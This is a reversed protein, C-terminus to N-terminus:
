DAWYSGAIHLEGAASMNTYALRTTDSRSIGLYNDTALDVYPNDVGALNIGTSRRDNVVANFLANASADVPLRISVASTDAIDLGSWTHTLKFFVIKGVKIYRWTCTQSTVTVFAFGATTVTKEELRFFSTLDSGYLDLLKGSRLPRLVTDGTLDSRPALQLEEVFANRPTFLALNVGDSMGAGALVVLGRTERVPAAAYTQDATAPTALFYGGGEVQCDIMIIDQNIHSHVCVPEGTHFKANRFKVGRVPFGSIELAKSDTLSFSSAEVGSVHDLGYSYIDQYETNGFGSSPHRVEFIGAAAPDPTVGTFTYDNATGTHSVGTYTYTVNNSGRFTGGAPNFYIESSWRITVSNATTATVKWIDPGRVGVGRRGNFKARVIRNREATSDSIATACQFHAFERWGGVVQINYDDVYEGNRVLYGFDWDDGLSSMGTNSWDSIGNTGVWNCIRLNQIGGYRVNEKVLIGASFTKQTAPTTGTADSNYASFLKFYTGPNAPDERWGGSHEGSTIGDFTLNATGTGKFLFTTGEWTKPRAPFIPEWEGVGDGVIYVGDSREYRTDFVYIQGPARIRAGGQFVALADAAALALSNAAAQTTVSAAGNLAILEEDTYSVAGFWDLVWDDDILRVWAGVTAAIASAKVYIAEQTDAAIHTSFDGARWQFIGSRGAEKLYAVTDKTTDLAKLATRTEVYSATDLFNRVDSALSLALIATGASGPTVAALTDLNDSHAQIDEGIGHNAMGRGNDSWGLLKGAENRPLQWQNIDAM